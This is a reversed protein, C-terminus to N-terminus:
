NERLAAALAQAGDSGVNSYWLNLIILTSNTKLAEALAQARNDGIKLSTALMTGTIISHHMFSVALEVLKKLGALEDLGSTM